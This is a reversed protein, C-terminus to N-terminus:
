NKAHGPTVLHSWNAFHSLYKSKVMVTYTDTLAFKVKPAVLRSLTHGPTVLYCFPKISLNSWIPQHLKKLNPWINGPTVLHSWIAFYMLYKSKVM